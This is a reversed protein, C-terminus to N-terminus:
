LNEFFATYAGRIDEVSVLKDYAQKMYNPDEILQELSALDHMTPIYQYYFDMADNSSFVYTDHRMYILELLAASIGMITFEVKKAYECILDESNGLYYDKNVISDYEDGRYFPHYKLVYKYGHKKCYENALVILDKNHIEEGDLLVGIIRNNNNKLVPLDLCRCNGCIIMKSVDYGDKIAEQRTIENSALFFDAVSNDFEVGGFRVERRSYIVGHQLTITKKGQSRFYQVSINDAEGADFLVVYNDFSLYNSLARMQANAMSIAGVVFLKSTLNLQIGKLERFWNITNKVNILTTKLGYFHPWRYKKHIILSSNKEACSYVKKMLEVHDKRGTAERSIIFLTKANKNYEIFSYNYQYLLTIVGIKFIDVIPNRAGGWEIYDSRIKLIKSCDIGEMNSFTIGKIAESITM